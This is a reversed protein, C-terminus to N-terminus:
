LFETWGKSRKGICHFCNLRLDNKTLIKHLKLDANCHDRHDGLLRLAFDAEFYALFIESTNQGQSPVIRGLSIRRRHDAQRYFAQPQLM